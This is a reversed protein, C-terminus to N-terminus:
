MTGQFVKRAVRGLWGRGEVDAGSRAKRNGREEEALSADDVTHAAGPDGDLNREVMEESIGEHDCQGIASAATRTLNAAPLAIPTTREKRAGRGCRVAHEGSQAVSGSFVIASAVARGRDRPGLGISQSAEDGGVVGGDGGGGGGGGM